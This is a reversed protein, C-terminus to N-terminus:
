LKFQKASETLERSINTLEETASRCELVIHTLQDMTAATEETSAANNQSIENLEDIREMVGNKYKEISELQGSIAGIAEVVHEIENNLTRFAEQTVDLKENQNKIEGVVSDMVVVSHNSNQILTEVIGRIQDASEKSQDALTRIEEAVVAFGRGMEGARAAEISANLSLLNTQNAIGAIIDTASRIAQASENTLNTQKQVEDVSSSTRTSIDILEKLTADVTENNQKMTAASGNLGNVSEATKNIAANMEEMNSNVNETDAAQQTAGEAIETMAVNVNDISQTISDFNESFRSTCSEMQEMSSRLKVITGAFQAIMRQVARAIKGIEDTRSCLKESIQLNLQGEAALNLNQVVVLLVRAIARIAFGALVCAVLVVCVMIIIDRTVTGSYVGKIDSVKEATMVVGSGGQANEEFPSFYAMYEGGNMKFSSLFVSEGAAVREAVSDKLPVDGEFSSAIRQGGMFIAIEANTQDKYFALLGNEGSVPTEGRYLGDERMSIEEGTGILAQITLYKVAELEKHVMREATKDGLWNLSLAAYLTLLLIPIMLLTLVKVILNLGKRGNETDLQKKVDVVSDKM